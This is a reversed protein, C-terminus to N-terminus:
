KEQKPELEKVRAQAKALEAQVSLLSANCTLGGQIEQLLKAALAQESPTQQHQQASAATTLLLNGLLFTVRLAM